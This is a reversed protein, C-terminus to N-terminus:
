KDSKGLMKGTQSMYRREEDSLKSTKFLKRADAFAHSPSGALGPRKRNRKYAKLLHSMNSGHETDEGEHRKATKLRTAVRDRQSKTEHGRTKELLESVTELIIELRTM